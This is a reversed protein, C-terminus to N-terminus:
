QGLEAGASPSMASFRLITAIRAASTTPKLRSAPASSSRVSARSLASLLSRMSGVIETCLPRTTFRVPSPRQDLEAAHDVGHAAGDLHLVSHDLAVRAQGGLPADFEADAYVKAVHDLFGVAIQHAVADIDGRPEM